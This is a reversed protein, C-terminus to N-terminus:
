PPAYSFSGHTGVLRKKEKGDLSGLYVASNEPAGPVNLYLYLRGDPLIQPWAYDLEGHTPETKAVPVPDGGARSVRLVGGKSKRRSSMRMACGNSGCVKSRAPSLKGTASCTLDSLNVACKLM